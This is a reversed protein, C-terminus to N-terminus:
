GGTGGLIADVSPLEPELNRIQRHALFLGATVYAVALFALAFLAGLAFGLRRGM